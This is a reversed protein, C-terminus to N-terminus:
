TGGNVRALGGAGFYAGGVEAIMIIAIPFM